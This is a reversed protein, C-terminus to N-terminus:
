GAAFRREHDILWRKRWLKGGYGTLAGDAGVVRHCPVVIAVQNAGNARGVARVAEARGLRDALAGYTTTTGPPIRILAAWVRASFASGPQAVPVTFAASRGDFYGALEGALRDLLPHDAFGIPGVRRMLRDLEGALATRDHFELLRVGVDDAVALLAGIPSALWRAALRARRRGAGAAAETAAEADAFAAIRAEHDARWAAESSYNALPETAPVRDDRGAAAATRGTPRCRLCPRFGAIEAEAASAFFRTNARKPTRASCILRCFIGTSTVGVYAAGDFAPDRAALAAYLTDDDPLTM